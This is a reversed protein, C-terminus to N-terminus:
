RKYYKHFKFYNLQLLCSVEVPRYPTLCSIDILHQSASIDQARKQADLRDVGNLSAHEIYIRCHM